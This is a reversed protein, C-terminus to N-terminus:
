KKEAPSASEGALKRLRELEAEMEATKKNERNMYQQRRIIDYIIFAFVPIGIFIVMGLPTQLFLAFDGLKPIRSMYIGVLNDESVPRQDTANNADGKTTFRLKNDDDTQIEIIRHTVVVKGEMFAIVDGVELESAETETVFILDGTEIHDEADGSMSGSLVVMPTVGFVAPPREPALTGKVIITMNCILMFGFIVCLIVGLITMIPNSVHEERSRNVERNINDM